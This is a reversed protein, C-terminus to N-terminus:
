YEPSSPTLDFILGVQDEIIDEMNEEIFNDSGLFRSSVYGVSAAFALLVFIFFLSVYYSKM